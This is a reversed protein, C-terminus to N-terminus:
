FGQFPDIGSYGAYGLLGERREQPPRVESLILCSETKSDALALATLGYENMAESDAGLELLMRVIGVVDFEAAVHLATNGDHATSKANLLRPEASIMRHVKSVNNDEIARFLEHLLALTESDIPQVPNEKQFM